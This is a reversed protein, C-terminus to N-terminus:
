ALFSYFIRLGSMVPWLSMMALPIIFLTFGMITKGTSLSPSVNLRRSYLIILIIEVVVTGLEIIPNM